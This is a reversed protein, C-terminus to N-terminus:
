LVVYGFLVVCCLVVCCYVVCCYVVRYLIRPGIGCVCCLWVCCSGLVVWGLVVCCLTGYINNQHDDEEQAWATRAYSNLIDAITSSLHNM